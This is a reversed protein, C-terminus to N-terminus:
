KNFLGGRRGNGGGVFYQIPLSLNLTFTEVGPNQSGLEANSLHHFVAGIRMGDDFRWAAEIGTRFELPYGLDRAGGAQYWGLAANPSLIFNDGFRVDAMLGGYVYTSGPHTVEIGAIPHAIWFYYSPRYEFRMLAATGDYGPEDDKMIHYAGAGFTLLDVEDPMADSSLDNGRILDGIVGAGLLAASGMWIMNFAQDARAAPVALTGIPVSGVAIMVGAVLALVAKRM